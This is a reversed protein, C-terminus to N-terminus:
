LTWSKKPLLDIVFERKTLNTYKRMMQWFLQITTISNLLLHMIEISLLYSYILYAIPLYPVYEIWNENLDEGEEDESNEENMMEDPNSAGDGDEEDDVIIRRRKRRDDDDADM